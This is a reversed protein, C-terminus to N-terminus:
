LKPIYEIGLKKARQANQNKVKKEKDPKQKTIAGPKQRSLERATPDWSETLDWKAKCEIVDPYYYVEEAQEDKDYCGTDWKGNGNRDVILRMYYKEPKLYYFEAVVEWAGGSRYKKPEEAAAVTAYVVLKCNTAIKCSHDNKIMFTLSHDKRSKM